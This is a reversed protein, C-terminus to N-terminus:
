LSALRWKLPKIRGIREDDGIIDLLTFVRQFRRHLGISCRNDIFILNDIGDADSKRFPALEKLCFLMKFLHFANHAHAIVANISNVVGLRVALKVALSFHPPLTSQRSSVKGCEQSFIVNFGWNTM